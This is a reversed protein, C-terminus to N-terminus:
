EIRYTRGLVESSCSSKKCIAFVTSGYISSLPIEGTQDDLSRFERSPVVESGDHGVEKENTFMVLVDLSIAEYGVGSHSINCRMQSCVKNGRFDFM